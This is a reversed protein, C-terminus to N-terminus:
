RQSFRNPVRPQMLSPAHRTTDADCRQLVSLNTHVPSFVAVVSCASVVLPPADGCYAVGLEEAMLRVRRLIPLLVVARELAVWFAQDLRVPFGM